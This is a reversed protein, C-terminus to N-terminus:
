FPPRFLQFNLLIFNPNLFTWEWSTTAVARGHSPSYQCIGMHGGISMSLSIAVQVSELWIHKSAQKKTILHSGVNNLLYCHNLLEGVFPITWDYSQTFLGQITLKISWTNPLLHHHYTSVYVGPYRLNVGIFFYGLLIVSAQWNQMTTGELYTQQQMIMWVRIYEYDYYVWCNVYLGCIKDMYTVVWQDWGCQQHIGWTTGMRDGHIEMFNNIRILQKSWAQKKRLSISVWM